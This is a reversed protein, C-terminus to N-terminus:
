STRLDSKKAFEQSTTAIPAGAAVMGRLVERDADIHHRPHNENNYAHGSVTLSFGAMVVDTAGLALALAVLYVGNSPKFRQALEDGVLSAILGRRTPIDLSVVRDAIYRMRWLNFDHILTRSGDSMRVLCGTERRRLVQQAARNSPRLGLVTTGFLTMDPRPMGWGEAIVQSANVTLLRRTQLDAPPVAGPASGLVLVPGDFRPLGDPLAPM